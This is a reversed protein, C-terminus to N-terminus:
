KRHVFVSPKGLLVYLGFRFQVRLLDNIIASEVVATYATTLLDFFRFLAERVSFSTACVLLKSEGTYSIASFGATGGGECPLPSSSESYEM